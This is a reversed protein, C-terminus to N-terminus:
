SSTSRKLWFDFPRGPIFIDLGTSPEKRPNSVAHAENGPFFAADGQTLLTEDGMDNRVVLMGDLVVLVQANPHRHLPSAHLGPKIFHEISVDKQSCILSRLWGQEPECRRATAHHIVQM